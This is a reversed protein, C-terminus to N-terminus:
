SENSNGPQKLFTHRLLGILGGFLLKFPNPGTYAGDVGYRVKEGEPEYTGMMRDWILLFGGLNKDVYRDNRGHHVRHAAPTNLIGELFGLKGIAETHLFFQYFINLFVCTVVMSPSFGLLVCPVFFFVNFLSYLWNLRYSTTLNMREASHHTVHFAWFFAIKHSAFHFWFYMFDVLVFCGIWVWGTEPLHVPALGYFFDLIILQYGLTVFKRTLVFGTLLFLNSCTERTEYLKRNEAWNWIMEALVALVFVVLFILRYSGLHDNILM